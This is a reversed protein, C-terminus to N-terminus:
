GKAAQPFNETQVAPVWFPWHFTEGPFRTFLSRRAEQEPLFGHFVFRQGHDLMRGTRNFLLAAM